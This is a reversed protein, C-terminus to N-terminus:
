CVGVDYFYIECKGKKRSRKESRERIMERMGRM